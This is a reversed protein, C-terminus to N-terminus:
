QTEDDDGPVEDLPEGPIRYEGRLWRALDVDACRKSCFPRYSPVSPKDCIPCVAIM